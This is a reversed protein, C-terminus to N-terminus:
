FVGYILGVQEWALQPPSSPPGPHPGAGVQLLPVVLQAALLGIGTGAAIGALVLLLQEVILAVSVQAGSMGLARLGGWGWRFASSAGGPRSIMWSSTRTAASGSM